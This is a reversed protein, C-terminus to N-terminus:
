GSPAENRWAPGFNSLPSDVELTPTPFALWPRDPDLEALRRVFVDARDHKVEGRHDLFQGWSSSGQFGHLDARRTATAIHEPPFLSRYTSTNYLWSVGRVRTAEPHAARVQDFVAVLEAKRRARKTPHLPSLDDADTSVFHCRVVADTVEASFPGACVDTSSTAARNTPRDRAFEITWELQEAPSGLGTLTEAYHHWEPRTAAMPPKGIGFRRAFNTFWLVTDGLDAESRQAITSAFRLQIDLYRDPLPNVM